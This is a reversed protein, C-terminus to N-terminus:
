YVSMYLEGLTLDRIVHPRGQRTLVRSMRTRWRTDSGYDKRNGQVCIHRSAWPLIPPVM